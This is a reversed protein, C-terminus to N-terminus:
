SRQRRAAIWRDIKADLVDLPLAGDELVARHFAKVDFRPGLAAEARRRLETIKRQGITYALGQAPIASFREVESQIITESTASNRRAYEAARAHTWGQAHIGTDLVLRIARWLESSLYGFYQYPDTYLGLERGLTEAYLGWGESYATFGGFRRIRPVGTLERAISVQFHHGPSGEHILLSEMGYRARGPPDYTNLHFVGPRTGDLSAATYSGGSFSRERFPEVPRIEYNAAPRVDFLRDTSADIRAQAARFDALMEERTAYRFRPETQVHRMFSRLDGAWGVQRMVGEMERHIRAVETLGIAHVQEPTLDTTTVTRVLHEYWARGGPLAALGVTARTRPLYEDRVFDHLRRYAPAVRDRVASRYEATLRAREAPPFDAPMNAVPGWFLSATPDAVAHAALQPLVREMLVRPQVVGAAVGERMNAIAADVSREFGRVRSLFDDYDKVTRFPHAGTGSGLQAFAATFNFFQNLPVLQSPFREGARQSDLIRRFVDYTVRHAPDLAARDVGRLRGDYEAALARARARVEPEFGATYLHNYRADGTSTAALPNLPLTAEYYAEALSDLRQDVAASGGPTTPAAPQPAPTGQAGAPRAAFGATLLCAIALAAPQKVLSAGTPPSSAPGRGSPRPRPGGRRGARRRVAPSTLGFLVFGSGVTVLGLASFARLVVNNFDDRGAYDMTHLMWLFDFARWRDNRVRLVQGMEAPVYATAGESDGFRVAWAPLPQERFEHHPGVSDATLLSVSTVPAAGAYAARAARVAEDRALPGRLAGTSADVLARRRVSRSGAAAFYGVRYTPRGLVGVLEVGAVSDVPARARIAAVAAAPSVTAQEASVPPAPRMLHDGHVADLDTWSFYLGGATWLVFQVGIFLGLWRHIRRARSTASM